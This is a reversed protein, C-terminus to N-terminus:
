PLHRGFTWLRNGLFCYTAVVPVALAAAPIPHLGALEVFTTLLALNLLLGTGQVTVYRALKANAHSGARFTWLRNFTYGNITAVVVSMARAAVYWVGLHLFLVFLVLDLVVSVVGVMAYKVAHRSERHRALAVARAGLRRKVLGSSM